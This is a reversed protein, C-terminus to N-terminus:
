WFLKKLSNKSYLIFSFFFILRACNFDSFSSWVQARTISEGVHVLPNCSLLWLQVYKVSSIYVIILPVCNNLFMCQGSLELASSCVEQQNQWVRGDSYGHREQWKAYSTEQNREWGKGTCGDDNGRCWTWWQPREQWITSSALNKIGMTLLTFLLMSTILDRFQLGFPAM